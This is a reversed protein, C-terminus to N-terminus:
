FKTQKTIKFEKEIKDRLEIPYLDYKNLDGISIWEPHYRGHYKEPHTYEPGNGYGAKGDLVTCLYFHNIRGKFNQEFIRKDVEVTLNVEEMCERKLAEEANKDSSEMHGGPFVWRTDEDDFERRLALVKKDKIIVARVSILINHNM